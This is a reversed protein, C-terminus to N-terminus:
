TAWALRAAGSISGCDGDDIAVVLADVCSEVRRMESVSGEVFFEALLLSLGAGLGGRGLSCACRGTGSVSRKSSFVLDFLDQAPHLLPRM